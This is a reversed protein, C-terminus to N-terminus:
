LQNSNTIISTISEYCHFIIKVDNSAYNLKKCVKNIRREHVQLTRANFVPNFDTNIESRADFLKKLDGVALLFISLLIVTFYRQIM